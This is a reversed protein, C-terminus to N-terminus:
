NVRYLCSMIFSRFYSKQEIKIVANNLLLKEWDPLIQNNMETTLKFFRYMVFLLISHIRNTNVFDTVLWLANPKLSTLIKAIVESLQDESFLDLFCFTIVVDFKEEYPISNETGLMFCIRCDGNTAARAMKLMENSEEIYIIKCAPNNQLFKMLWWGTGGGIVLVKSSPPVSNLFYTQAKILSKGFVLRALQDYYKAIADFGM